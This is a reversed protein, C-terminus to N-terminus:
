TSSGEPQDDLARLVKRLALMSAGSHSSEDIELAQYRRAFLNASFDPGAILREAAALALRRKERDWQRATKTWYITYSYAPDAEDATPGRGLLAEIAARISTM